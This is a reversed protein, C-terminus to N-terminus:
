FHDAFFNGPAGGPPTTTEFVTKDQAYGHLMVITPFPGSGTPPLTVDVDLPAGDWSPVRLDSDSTPAPTPCFRAGYPELTCPHGFPLPGSPAAAATSATMAAVVCLVGARVLGAKVRFM